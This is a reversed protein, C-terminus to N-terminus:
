RVPKVSNFFEWVLDGYHPPPPASNGRMDVRPAVNCSKVLPISIGPPSHGMGEFSMLRVERQMDNSIYRPVPRVSCLPGWREKGGIDMKLDESSLRAIVGIGEAFAAVMEQVSAKNLQDPTALGGRMEPYLCKRDEGEFPMLPDETGNIFLINTPVKPTSTLSGNTLRALISDSPTAIISAAAQIKVDWSPSTLIYQVMMGGRSIGVLYLRKPDIRWDPKPSEVTSKKKFLERRIPFETVVAKSYAAGTFVSRLFPLDNHTPGPTCVSDQPVGDMAWRGPALDGGTPSDPLAGPYAIMFRESDILTKLIDYGMVAEPRSDINAGGGGHLVVVLPITKQEDTLTSPDAGPVLYIVEREVGQLVPDDIKALLSVPEAHAAGTMLMLAAAWSAIFRFPGPIMKAIGGYSLPYLM